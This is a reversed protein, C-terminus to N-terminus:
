EQGFDRKLDHIAQRVHRPEIEGEGELPLRGDRDIDHQRRIREYASHSTALTFVSIADRPSPGEPVQLRGWEEWFTELLETSARHTELFQSEVIKEIETRTPYGVSIVPHLRSRLFAPLARGEFDATNTAAVFRFGPHAEVRAGLLTSDIYRREDLVSVLLALARPRIKGIEDIFCIQGLHMATVLASATYDMAGSKDDSFRIGFALDEATLDEHGQLIYLEKGARTAIEYVLRNKGVGPSGLLLPSLPLGRRGVMWAATLLALEADRGVLAGLSCKPTYREALRVTKNGLQATAQAATV